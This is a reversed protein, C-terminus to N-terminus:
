AFALNIGGVGATGCPKAMTELAVAIRQFDGIEELQQFGGAVDAQM